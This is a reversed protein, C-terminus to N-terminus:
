FYKVTKFYINKHKELKNGGFKTDNIRWSTNNIVEIDFMLEQNYIFYYKDLKGIIVKENNIINVDVDYKKSYESINRKALTSLKNCLIKTMNIM